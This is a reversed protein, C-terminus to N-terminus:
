GGICDMTYEETVKEIDYFSHREPKENVAKEILRKLEENRAMANEILFVDRLDVTSNYCLCPKLIGYSTLRIRNCSECFCKNMASIFGVKTKLGPVSYYVAPGNGTKGNIITLEGFSESLENIVNQNSFSEHLRGEGVPMLEIFRIDVSLRDAMKVMDTASTKTGRNVCNVRVPIGSNVAESIGNLVENLVPRGTLLEYDKEDITDLSVNIRDVRSNKLENIRKRLLVGNTTITVENVGPITKLTSIIEPTDQRVLPEGGTIKFSSIGIESAARVTDRINEASLEFHNTDSGSQADRPRCYSCFLDCKSTVSIRMYDINRGFADKM